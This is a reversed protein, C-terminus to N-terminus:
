PKISILESTVQLEYSDKLGLSKQRLDLSSKAMKQQEKKTLLACRAAIEFVEYVGQRTEPSCEMYAYAGIKEAMAYGVEFM